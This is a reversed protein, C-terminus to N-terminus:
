LATPDSNMKSLSLKIALMKWYATYQKVNEQEQWTLTEILELSQKSLFTKEHNSNRQQQKYTQCVNNLELRFKKKESYNHCEHWIYATELHSWRAQTVHMIGWEQTKCRSWSQNRDNGTSSDEHSRHSDSNNSQWINQKQLKHMFIDAKFISTNSGFYKM